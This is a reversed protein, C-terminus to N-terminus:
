EVASSDPLLGQLCLARIHDLKPTQLGTTAIAATLM